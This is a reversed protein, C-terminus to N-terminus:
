NTLCPSLKVKKVIYQPRRLINRFIPAFVNCMKTMYSQGRNSEFYITTRYVVTVYVHPVGRARLTNINERFYLM